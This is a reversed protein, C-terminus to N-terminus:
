MGGAGVGSDSGGDAGCGRDEYEDYVPDSDPEGRRDDQGWDSDGEYSRYAM